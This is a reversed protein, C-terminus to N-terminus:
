VQTMEVDEDDGGENGKAAVLRAFYGGETPGRPYHREGCVECTPLLDDDVEEKEEVKEEEDDDSSEGESKEKKEKPVTWAGGNGYCKSAVIDTRRRPTPKTKAGAEAAAPKQSVQPQAAVESSTDETDEVNAIDEEEEGEKALTFGYRGGHVSKQEGLRKAVLNASNLSVLTRKPQGSSELVAACLRWNRAIATDHEHEHAEECKATKIFSQPQDNVLDPTQYYGSGGPLARVRVALYRDHAMEAPTRGVANEYSLLSPDLDLVARLVATGVDSKLITHLPTDGTGDLMRLAQQTTEVSIDVFLKLMQVVENSSKIRQIVADALYQHLPTRGDQELKTREKIMGALVDRDLLDLMAKLEKRGPDHYLATHFLNNRAYDKTTQDAGADILIKAADLRGLRYALM